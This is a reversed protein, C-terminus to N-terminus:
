APISIGRKGSTEEDRAALRTVVLFAHALLCLTIYRHWADWRRVEYHDLGVEGKAEAFCDEVRWRTQCLGVLRALSTREPGYAQYFTLDEPDESSRRVLLWHRMGKQPDAPSLELCAWEWPRRGHSTEGAPTVLTRADEPLREVLREIKKRRERYRVANTKPVMVAYPRRRKELWSRFGHSRGYFSDAVVWSAPVDAEFARKLMRKALKLKDAFRVEEPVGAETRRDMDQAWESPLYLARDVFAAGKKSSYALFVGVQCNVTDGATGTYQRAVGVSKEGKKLFGTEDVILVGSDEDGLHGVVYDRLDDRVLDADWKAANLLRQVGQPDAEGIAEALQWGNKREARGLLGRLYRQVRERAESRAFRHAIRGHLEELAESWRRVASPEVIGDQAIM